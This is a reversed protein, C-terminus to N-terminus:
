EDAGRAHNRAATDREREHSKKRKKIILAVAMSTKREQLAQGGKGRGENL